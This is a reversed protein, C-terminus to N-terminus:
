AEPMSGGFSPCIEPLLAKESFKQGFFKGQGPWIMKQFYLPFDM